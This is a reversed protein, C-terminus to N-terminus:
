SASGASFRQPLGKPRGFEAEKSFDRGSVQQCGDGRGPGEGGEPRSAGQESVRGTATQPRRQELTEFHSPRYISNLSIFSTMDLRVPCYVLDEKLSLTHRIGKETFDCFLSIKCFIRAESCHM